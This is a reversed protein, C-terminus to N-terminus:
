LAGLIGGVAAGLGPGIVPIATGIQAGSAAGGVIGAGINRSTPTTSTSQGTTSTGYPVGGLASLLINLNQVPWAQEEYHQGRPVDLAAQDQNQQAAGITQLMSAEKQAQGQQAMALNPLASLATMGQQQNATAINGAQTQANGYGAQGLSALFQSATMGQAAATKALDLGQGSALNWGSTLMDGIQKQTGLATQADAVGESVGQRSGGFAGVNNANGAVTQRALLRAQEGAALAPDIVNQTYPNMLQQANSVVQGATAPGQGAYSGLLGQAPNMVQQQYNGFLSNTDGAIGAATIPAAQGLLGQYVGRAQDFAPTTAGQMDRVQQYAQNTDASPTALIQGTYPQYERQSLGTATDVAGQAATTLWEPLKTESASNTTQTKSGGKSM